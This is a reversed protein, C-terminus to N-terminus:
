EREAPQSPGQLANYLAHLDGRLDAIDERMEELAAATSGSSANQFTGDAICDVEFAPCHHQIHDDLLGMNAARMTNYAPLVKERWTAGDIRSDCHPCRRAPDLDLQRHYVDWTGGCYACHIRLYAM